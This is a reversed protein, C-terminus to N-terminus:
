REHMHTGPYQGPFLWGEPRAQRAYTQVLKWAAQSLLKRGFSVRM